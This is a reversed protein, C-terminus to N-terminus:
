VTRRSRGVHNAVAGRPQRLVRDVAAEAEAEDAGYAFCGPYDLAWVLTRGEINNEIGIRILM